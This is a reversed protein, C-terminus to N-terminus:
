SGPVWLPELIADPNDTMPGTQFDPPQRGFQNGATAPNYRKTTRGSCLMELFTMSVGPRCILCWWVWIIRKTPMSPPKYRCHSWHRVSVISFGTMQAVGRWKGLKRRLDLLMCVAEDHTPASLKSFAEWDKAVKVGSGKRCYLRTHGRM